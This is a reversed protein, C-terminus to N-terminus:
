GAVAAQPATSHAAPERGGSLLDHRAAILRNQAEGVAELAFGIERLVAIRDGNAAQAAVAAQSATTLAAEIARGDQAAIVRAVRRQVAANSIRQQVAIMRQVHRRMFRLSITIGGILLAAYLGIFLTLSMNPAIVRAAGVFAAYFWSVTSVAGLVSAVAASRRRDRGRGELMPFAVSHLLAGNLTLIVVVILKAMLKPNDPLAGFQWGLSFGVLPIGTAWLLVLLWKVRVATEEVDRTDLRRAWMMRWDVRIVEAIAWAFVLIHGYLLLQRVVDSVSM